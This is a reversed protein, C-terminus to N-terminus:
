RPALHQQQLLLEAIAIDGAHTIKINDGRGPVLLPKQGVAELASAEDTLITGAGTAAKIAASLQELRFLQPTQAQWLCSRQPTNEIKPPTGQAFKITDTVPVALVGGCVDASMVASLLSLVEERRVLPRAADHVLVWTAPDAFQLLHQLGALVSQSRDAGGVVTSISAESAHREQSWFEDSASISVVIKTIEDLDLFPKISRAIV